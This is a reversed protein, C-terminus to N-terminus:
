LNEAPGDMPPFPGGREPSPPYAPPDYGGDWKFGGSKPNMGGSEPPIARKESGATKVGFGRFFGKSNNARHKIKSHLSCYVTKASKITGNTRLTEEPVSLLREYCRHYNLSLV